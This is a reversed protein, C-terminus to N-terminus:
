KLALSLWAIILLFKKKGRLLFYFRYHYAFNRIKITSKERFHRAFRSSVDIKTTLSTTYFSSFMFIKPM